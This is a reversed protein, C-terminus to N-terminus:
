GLLCALGVKGLQSSLSSLGQGGGQRSSFMPLLAHPGIPLLGHASTGGAGAKQLAVALMDPTTPLTDPLPMSLLAGPTDLAHLFTSPSTLGPMSLLLPPRMLIHDGLNHGQGNIATM